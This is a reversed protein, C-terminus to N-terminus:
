TSRTHTAFACAARARSTARPKGAAGTSTASVVTVISPAIRPLGASAASASAISARRAPRVCSTSVASATISAVPSSIGGASDRAVDFGALREALRARVRDLPARRFEDLSDVAGM